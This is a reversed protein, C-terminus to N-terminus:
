EAKHAQQQGLFTHDCFGPESVDKLAEFTRDPDILVRADFHRANVAGYTVCIGRREDRELCSYVTTVNYMGAVSDIFHVYKDTSIVRVERAGAMRTSISRATQKAANIRQFHLLSQSKGEVLMLNGTAADVDYTKYFACHVFPSAVLNDFEGATAGSSLALMAIVCAARRDARRM